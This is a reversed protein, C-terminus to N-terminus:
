VSSFLLARSVLNSSRRYVTGAGCRIVYACWIRVGLIPVGVPNSCGVPPLNGWPGFTPPSCFSPTKLLVFPDSGPTLLVFPDVRRLGQPWRSGSGGWGLGLVDGLMVMSGAPATKEAATTPEAAM